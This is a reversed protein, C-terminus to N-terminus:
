FALRVTVVERGQVSLNVVDTDRALEAGNGEREAMDTVVARSFRRWLRIRGEVPEPGSNWVRLILGQGDEPTKVASIRLIEPEVSVFSLESPLVERQPGISVARLDTQFGEALALASRYDGSHPIIAYRFTYRDKCQAEPVELMPGANGRRCHLDDRSLWGVCRMLTLAIEAGRESRVLEVEPLGRNAITVGRQGDSVSVWGRQPRTPQPQEFWEETKEPVGAPFQIVDWHGSADAEDVAFPIPFHVRLRHDRARNDVTTELDVRRLGPLLTVRVCIPIDVKQRSRSLRDASDLGEPICYSMRVTLSQGTPDVKRDVALVEAPSDVLWDQEPQCYNYEDGRDGGDVLRHSEPLALGTVKDTVTFLGTTPDVEVRLYKNEIDLGDTSDTEPTREQGDISNTRERKVFRYTAYGLPPMNHAVFEVELAEGELIRVQYEQVSEDELLDKLQATREEPLAAGPSIGRTVSATVQATGESAQVRLGRVSWEGWVVGGSAEAQDLIQAMTGRDFTMETESQFKYERIRFGVAKGAPNLLAVQQPDVPPTVAARVLGSQYASSPNFVVLAATCDTGTTVEAALSQLAAGVVEEGLQECWDFRTRMERHVQDVSCGCISDHPHNELLYKWARRTHVAFPTISPRDSNTSTLEDAVLESVAGFPEAWRELLMECTHNRQKIWMRTSLVGPLINARSPDRMEGTQLPLGAIGSPGLEERVAKVYAPLNSHTVRDPLQSDAAAILDSLDARPQLHDTGQMMLLHTTAAHPALSDRARAFMDAVEEGDTPLLATNDYHDRLYCVLVESGDPAAWRFELPQDGAGRAFLATDIGFGRLLQPLQSIHGFPDPVYGLEMKTGWERCIRDGLLLNRVLSEPSVLFEDPLVFWPGIIIRGVGILRRLPDELEPRVDLIDQLMVTQGDLMFHRYEPDQELIKSLREVLDVLRFRFQQFTLYWERDWHTHSVVHLTYM